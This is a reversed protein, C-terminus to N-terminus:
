FNPGFQSARNRRKGNLFVVSQLYWLPSQIVVGLLSVYIGSDSETFACLRPVSISGHQAKEYIENKDLAMVYVAITDVTKALGAM